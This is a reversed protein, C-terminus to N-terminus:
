AALSRCAAGCAACRALHRELANFVTTGLGARDAQVYARLRPASVHILGDPRRKFEPAPSGEIRWLEVLASERAASIEGLEIYQWSTLDGAGLADELSPGDRVVARLLRAFTV